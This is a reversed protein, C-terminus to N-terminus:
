RSLAFDLGHYAKAAELSFVKWNNLMTLHM